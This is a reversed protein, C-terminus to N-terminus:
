PLLAQALDHLDDILSKLSVKQKANLHPLLDGVKVNMTEGNQDLVQVSFNGHYAVGEESVIRHIQISVDAIETPIQNPLAEFPM